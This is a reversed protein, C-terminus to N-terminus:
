GSNSDLRHAERAESSLRRRDMLRFLLGLDFRQLKMCDAKLIM